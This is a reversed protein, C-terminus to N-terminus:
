PQQTGRREVAARPARRATVRHSDLDSRTMTASPTPDVGLSRAIAALLDDEDPEPEGSAEFSRSARLSAFGHVASWAIPEAGRRRESPMAGTAVLDDLATSLVKWPSPSGDAGDQAHPSDPEAPPLFAATLLDPEAQAFRLYGRGTALFRHVARRRPDTEDVRSMEDRMREALVGRASRAVAALLADRHPVHRYIAAPSVELRRAVERVTVAAPGGSRALEFAAEALARPLDGHHYTTRAMPGITAWINVTNVQDNMRSMHVGNVDTGHLSPFM